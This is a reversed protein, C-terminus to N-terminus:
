RILLPAVVKQNRLLVTAAEVADPVGVLRFRLNSGEYFVMVALDAAGIELADFALDVTAKLQSIEESLPMPAGSLPVFVNNNEVLWLVM